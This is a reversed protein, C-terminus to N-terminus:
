IKAAELDVGKLDVGQAAATEQRARKEADVNVNAM